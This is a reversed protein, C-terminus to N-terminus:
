EGPHNIGDRALAPQSLAAASPPSPAEPRIIVSLTPTGAPSGQSRRAQPRSSLLSSLARCWVCSASPPVSLAFWFLRKSCIQQLTPRWAFQIPSVSNSMRPEGVKSTAGGYWTPQSVHSSIHPLLQTGSRGGGAEQTYRSGYWKRGMMARMVLDSHSQSPAGLVLACTNLRYLGSKGTRM